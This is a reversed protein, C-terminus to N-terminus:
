APFFLAGPRFARGGRPGLVGHNRRDVPIPYPEAERRLLPRRLVCPPLATACENPRIRALRATTRPATLTDARRASDASASRAPTKSATQTPSLRSALGRSSDTVSSEASAAAVDVTRSRTPPM